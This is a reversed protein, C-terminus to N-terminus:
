RDTERQFQSYDAIPASLDDSAFVLLLGDDSLKCAGSWTMAPVYLGIDPSALVIERRRKGDDVVVTCSGRLCVIFQQATRHACQEDTKEGTAGSVTAYSKPLLPIDDEFRTDTPGNVRHLTVGEMGTQTVAAQTTGTNESGDATHLPEMADVYGVIQAPNGFVIANAPVSQTVVAGAGVMANPGIDLGPLITANAGISANKRVVTRLFEKQYARSRPFMTNTFTANPGVFADDELTIGDWLQVGCKITVRDGLLVDNEIFVGDCINCDQGIRAQPLVHAFAWVRTGEGVAKTECLAKPHIYVGSEQPPMTARSNM